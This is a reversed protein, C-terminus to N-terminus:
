KPVEPSLENPMSLRAKRWAASAATVPPRATSGPMARWSVPRGFSTRIGHSKAKSCALSELWADYANVGGFGPGSVQQSTQQQTM